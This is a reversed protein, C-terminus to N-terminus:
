KTRDIYVALMFLMLGTIMYGCIESLLFAGYGINLMALLLLFTHINNLFKKWM